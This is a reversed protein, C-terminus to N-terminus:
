QIASYQTKNYQSTPSMVTVGSRDSIESKVERLLPELDSWRRRWVKEHREGGYRRRWMREWRERRGIENQKVERGIWQCVIKMAVVCGREITIYCGKGDEGEGCGEGEKETKNYSGKVWDWCSGKEGRYSDSMPVPHPSNSTLFIPSSYTLEWKEWEKRRRRSYGGIGHTKIDTVM